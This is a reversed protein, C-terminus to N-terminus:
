WDPLLVDLFKFSTLYHYWHQQIYDLKNFWHGCFSLNNGFADALSICFIKLVREDYKNNHAIYHCVNCRASWVVHLSRTNPFVTKEHIVRWKPSNVLSRSLSDGSHLLFSLIELVNLKLSVKKNGVHNSHTNLTYQEWHPYYRSYTRRSNLFLFITKTWSNHVM